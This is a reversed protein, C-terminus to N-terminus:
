EAPPLHSVEDKIHNTGVLSQGTLPARQRIYVQQVAVFPM